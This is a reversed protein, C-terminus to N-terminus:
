SKRPQNIGLDWLERSFVRVEELASWLDPQYGKAGEFAEIEWKITDMHLQTLAATAGERKLISLYKEKNFSAFSTIAM